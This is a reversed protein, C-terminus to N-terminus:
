IMYDGFDCLIFLNNDKLNKNNKASFRFFVYFIKGIFINSHKQMMKSTDTVRNM